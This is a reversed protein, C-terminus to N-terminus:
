NQPNAASEDAQDFAQEGLEGPLPQLAADESRDDLKLHGDVAEEGLGIARGFGENPGFGGIVDESSGLAPAL